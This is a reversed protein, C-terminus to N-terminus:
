RYVRWVFAAIFGVLAAVLMSQSSISAGSAGGAGTLRSILMPAFIPVIFVALVWLAAAVIAGVFGFLLGKAYLM